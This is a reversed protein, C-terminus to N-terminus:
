RPPAHTTGRHGGQSAWEKEKLETLLEELLEGDDRFASVVSPRPEIRTRHRWVACSGATLASRRQSAVMKLTTAQIRIGSAPQAPPIVKSCSISNLRNRSSYEDHALDTKM